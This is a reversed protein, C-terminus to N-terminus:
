GNSICRDTESLLDYKRAIRLRDISCMHTDALPFGGLVGVFGRVALKRGRM